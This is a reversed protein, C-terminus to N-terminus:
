IQVDLILGKLNGVGDWYCDETIDRQPVYHSMSARLMAYAVLESADPDNKIKEWSNPFQEKFNNLVEETVEVTATIQMTTFVRKSHM